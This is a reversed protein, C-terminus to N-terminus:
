RSRPEYHFAASDSSRPRSPELDISANVRKPGPQAIEENHSVIVLLQM